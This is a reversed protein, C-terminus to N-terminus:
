RGSGEGKEARAPGQSATRAQQQRERRAQVWGEKVTQRERAVAFAGDPVNDTIVSGAATFADNGVTLPAVLTSHTGIFTNAGIETRNKQFGDYNCTITGAGINTKAGVCADGLYTLHNASVGDELVAAKTEVFNGIRVGKGLATGPRLHSFPGIKSDDGITAHDAVSVRLVVRNGITTHTVISNPGIICDEGIYTEGILHTNPLLTTDQGVTVGAEVYTTAPDTVTVGSLMLDHLLRARMKTNIDALEARTNVGLVVDPDSAVEAAITEGAERLLKIVDTLYLEGQANDPRLDRLARFLSPASFAYVSTNIERVKLQDPTADRAEVIGTVMKDDDRLVRGYSGADHPLVATLLTAGAGTSLHTELLRRLSDSSLLPTDGPLVLVIGKHAALLPEAMQTAHGTGKQVTQEAFLLSDAGYREDLTRRVTDGEHGVVVVRRTVGAGSLADLIHSLIPKGCVPHLAKPLKSRMRTSKGAALVIAAYDQNIESTTAKDGSM